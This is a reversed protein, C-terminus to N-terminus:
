AREGEDGAEAGDGEAAGGIGGDGLATAPPERGGVGGGEAHVADGVADATPVGRAEGGIAM